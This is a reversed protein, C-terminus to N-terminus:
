ARKMWKQCRLGLIPCGGTTSRPSQLVQYLGEVSKDNLQAFNDIMIIGQYDNAVVVGVAEDELKMWSLM